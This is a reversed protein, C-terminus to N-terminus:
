SMQVCVRGFDTKYTQAIDQRQFFARATLVAIIAGEDTGIGKMAKRLVKADAGADFDDVPQVTPEQPFTRWFVNYM